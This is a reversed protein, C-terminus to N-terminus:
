QKADTISTVSDPRRKGGGLKGLKKLSSSLSSKNRGHKKSATSAKSDVSRISATDAAVDDVAEAEVVPEDILVGEAQLPEETVIGSIGGTGVLRITTDPDQESPADAADVLVPSDESSKTSSSATAEEEPQSLVTLPAAHSLLDTTASPSTVPTGEPSEM